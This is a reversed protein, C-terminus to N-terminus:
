VIIFPTEPGSISRSPVRAPYPRHISQHDTLETSWAKEVPGTLRPKKRNRSPIPSAPFQVPPTFTTASHNGSFSRARADPIKLLPEEIPAIRAGGITAKRRSRNPQRQAKTRTPRAPNRQSATHHGM